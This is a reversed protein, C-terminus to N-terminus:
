ASSQCKAHQGRNVTGLTEEDTLTSILPPYLAYIAGLMFTTLTIFAILYLFPRVTWLSRFGATFDHAVMLTLMESDSFRPKARVKGRMLKV